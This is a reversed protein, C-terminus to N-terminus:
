ALAAGMILRPGMSPGPLNFSLSLSNENVRFTSRGRQDTIAFHLRIVAVANGAEDVERGLVDCPVELGVPLKSV